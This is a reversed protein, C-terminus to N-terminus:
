ISVAAVNGFAINMDESNLFIKLTRAPTLELTIRDGIRLWELSAMSRQVLATNHRMENGSVYWVNAPIRKMSIPINKRFHEDSLNLDTVGIKLGGALMDNYELLKIDFTEGVVLHHESFVLCRSLPLGTGSCRSAVTWNQSLTVSGSICSWRHKAELMPQIVSTAQLSQSNESTAYPARIDAQASTISVQACQGYLDVVVYMNQIPCEYASGQDVGNVFFHIADKNRMVGVRSGTTLTDLDFPMDNRITVGNYMLTSGSM